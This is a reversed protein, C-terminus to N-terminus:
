AFADTPISNSVPRDSSIRVLGSLGSGASSRHDHGHQPLEGVGIAHHQHDRMREGVEVHAIAASSAGPLSPTRPAAWGSARRHAGGVPRVDEPLPRPDRRQM